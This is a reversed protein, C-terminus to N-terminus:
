RRPGGGRYGDRRPGFRRRGQPGGPRPKPGGGGGRGKPKSESVKLMKGEHGRGNLAAIAMRAEQPTTMQVFAFGKCAGSQPDVAVEAWKVTGYPAFLRAIEESKAERGLNGVYLKVGM